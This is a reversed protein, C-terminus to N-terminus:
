YDYCNASTRVAIIMEHKCFRVIAHIFTYDHKSRVVLAPLLTLGIIVYVFAVALGLGEVAGIGVCACNCVYVCV